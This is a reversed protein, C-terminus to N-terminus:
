KKLDSIERIFRLPQVQCQVKIADSKSTIFDECKGSNYLKEVKYRKLKM